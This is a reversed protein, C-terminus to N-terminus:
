IRTRKRAQQSRHSAPTPVRRKESPHFPKGKQRKARSTITTDSPHRKICRSELDPHNIGNEKSESPEIRQRKASESFYLGINPITTTSSLEEPNKGTYNAVFIRAEQNLMGSCHSYILHLINSVLLQNNEDTDLIALCRFLLNIVNASWAFQQVYNEVNYKNSLVRYLFDRDQLDAGLILQDHMIHLELIPLNDSPYSHPM